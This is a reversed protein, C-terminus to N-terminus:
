NVKQFDLRPWGVGRLGVPPTQTQKQTKPTIQWKSKTLFIRGEGAGGATRSTASCTCSTTSHQKLPSFRRCYMRKWTTLSPPLMVGCPPPPTNYTAHRGEQKAQASSCLRDRSRLHPSLGPIQSVVPVALTHPQSLLSNPPGAWHPSPTGQQCLPCPRQTPPSLPPEPSSFKFRTSDVPGMWPCTCILHLDLPM